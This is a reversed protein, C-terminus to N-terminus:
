QPPTALHTAPSKEDKTSEETWSVSDKNDNDEKQDEESEEVSEMVEDTLGRLRRWRVFDDFTAVRGQTERHLRKFENLSPQFRRKHNSFWYTINRPKLGTKDQIEQREEKTLKDRVSYSKYFISKLYHTTEADYSTATRRSRNSRHM